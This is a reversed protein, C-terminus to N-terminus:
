TSRSRGNRADAGRRASLPRPPRSATASRRPSVGAFTRSLQGGTAEAGEVVEDFQARLKSNKQGMYAGFSGGHEGLRRERARREATGAAPGEAPARLLLGAPRQASAKPAQPAKPAEAAGRLPAPKPNWGSPALGHRPPPPSTGRGRGAM